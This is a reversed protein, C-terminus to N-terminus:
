TVYGKPLFCKQDNNESLGKIMLLIIDIIKNCVISCEWLTKLILSHSHEKLTWIVMREPWKVNFIAMKFAYFCGYIVKKM